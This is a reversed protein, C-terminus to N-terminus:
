GGLWGNDRLERTLWACYIPAAVLGTVGFASELVLVYALLAYVTMDIRCGVFHANLFYELKHVVILFVLSALGVWPSVTLGAVIIATNSLLNGVIPLLSGFFTCVALTRAFPMEVGFAPLVALLYVATIAANVTAIRLQAAFVDRFALVLQRWRAIALSPLAARTGHRHMTASAAVGIVLGIILHLVTRLAQQGLHQMERAHTRLWASIASQVADASEPIHAAISAPAITRIQDVTDALLRMLRPLGDTSANLLLEVGEFVAFAGGLILVVALLANAIRRSMPLRRAWPRQVLDSLVYGAMAGFLAAFLELWLVLLLAALAGIVARRRWPEPWAHTNMGRVKEYEPLM